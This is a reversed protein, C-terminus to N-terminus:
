STSWESDPTSQCHKALDALADTGLKEQCCKAAYLAAGIVPPYIPSALLYASKSSALAERFPELV